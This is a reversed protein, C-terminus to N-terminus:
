TGFKAFFYLCEISYISFPYSSDNLNRHIALNEYSAHIFFENAELTDVSKLSDNIRLRHSFTHHLLWFLFFFLDCLPQLCGANAPHIASLLKFLNFLVFFGFLLLSSAGRNGRSVSFFLIM